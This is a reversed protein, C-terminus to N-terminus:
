EESKLGWWKLTKELGLEFSTQPTFNLKERIKNVNSLTHKVDGKREPANVVQYRGCHIELMELIQNNSLAKGTGVNYIEGKLDHEYEACLINARCVDDVFILDRSQTGDGDSRLPQKNILKNVWASVATSYPSDGPQGPGYVNFYRLSVSDLEYLQYFLKCYDEIIKKQLGYPSGPNISGDERSPFNDEVNGYIASSSSFIFRKTNKVCATLLKVSRMVNIDSTEIPNEVSYEVRPLAALHFVFDYKKDAIRGLIYKHAFDGTVILLKKNDEKEKEHEYKLLFNVPVTRFDLGHLSDLSGNSMDDIVDVSYNKEILKRVLNSGIFGLGGTVLVRM